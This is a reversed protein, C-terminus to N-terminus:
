TVKHVMDDWTHVVWLFDTNSGYYIQHQLTNFSLNGMSSNYTAGTTINAIPSTARTSIDLAATAQALSSIIGVDIM